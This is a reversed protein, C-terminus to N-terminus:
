TREDLVEKVAQWIEKFYPDCILRLFNSYDVNDHKSYINRLKTLDPQPLPQYTETLYNGGRCDVLPCSKRIMRCKSGCTPCTTKNM